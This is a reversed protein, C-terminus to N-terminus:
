KGELINNARVQADSNIKDAQKQTEMMLNDSKSKAEQVIKDANRNAEDVLKDTAAKAAIEAMRGNKKADEIIKNAQNEAEKKADVAADAAAKNWQDAQAQADSMLKDAQAKADALIKDAEAKAEAKRKELEEGVKGELAEQAKKKLDDKMNGSAGALGTKLQPNTLTGGIKVNVDINEGVSFNSGFSNAQSILNDLVANAQGGFKDRPVTLKMDYDITEDFGTSGGLNASIDKYKLDFPNVILRGDTIEYTLNIPDSSIRKLDPMKLVDALKVLTNVNEIIISSTNLKGEGNMSNYIPMLEKDLLTSLTLTTSFNGRTKEALPVLKELIGFTSYAKQIDINAINFDFDATPEEPNKADFKGSLNATGNLIDMKLKNLTVAKDSIFIVGVVNNMEINDYIMQKFNSNLSFNINGPIEIAAVAVTDVPEEVPLEATATDEPPGDSEPMLESLNFYQSGTELKGVLTGDSLIYPMFNEIKGKASLDSSGINMKFNVLDLYAPSFNLQAKEIHVPKAIAETKYTVGEMLLSGLFQFEDYKENELASMKGEFSVRSILEGQLEDGEELPYVERIQSLNIEGDVKGKLQPDSMPTKVLLSFGFPNGALKFSFDSVDITMNDFDGGPYIIKTDININDVSKPLDPYQFKGDDVNLNLAFAPYTTENYIGKVNGNLALSGSTQINEFDRAYIAPVLSLFNKFDSKEANYTLMMSIDDNELLAVSGDFGLYLQNIRMENDKLTYISNVLDADVDANLEVDVKNFYKIGDYIVTAERAYTKTKLSTFDMTFDGSLSHDVGELLVFTVLSEDNYVIRADSITVKRLKVLFPSSSGVEAVDGGESPLTIDWNASGDEKVLANIGPQQFHIKKVEYADGKIVSMLDLTLNFAPAYILTDGDFPANNTILLGELEFNFDPFSKFLSLSFDAFELRANLNKNVEDKVAQAIQDRFFYPIIVMLAIIIIILIGFIKLTLKM